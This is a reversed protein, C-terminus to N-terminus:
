QMEELVKKTMVEHQIWHVTLQIVVKLDKIDKDEWKRVYHTEDNGLWVARKACQKINENNVFDNIIQAVPRKKIDEAKDSYLTICYDKILYELAKRFGVGAIESLGYSEAKTAQSFITLFQPSINSVEEAVAPVIPNYPILSRFNYYHGRFVKNYAVIFMRMCRKKPCTFSIDISDNNNYFRAAVFIPDIGTHCHPCHDPRKDVDIATKGLDIDEM